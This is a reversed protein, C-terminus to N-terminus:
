TNDQNFSKIHIYPFFNKNLRPFNLSLYRIQRKVIRLNLPIIQIFNFYYVLTRKQHQHYYLATGICAEGRKECMKQRTKM